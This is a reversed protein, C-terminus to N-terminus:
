FSKSKFKLSSNKKFEFDDHKNYFLDFVIILRSLLDLILRNDSMIFCMTFIIKIRTSSCSCLKEYNENLTIKTFFLRTLLCDNLDRNKAEYEYLDFSKNNM